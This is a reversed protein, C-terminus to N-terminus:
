STDFTHSNPENEISNKKSVSKQSLKVARLPRNEYSRGYTYATLIKRHRRIVEDLWKYIAVSDHYQRWDFSSCLVEPQEGDILRGSFHM